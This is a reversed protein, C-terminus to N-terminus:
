GPLRFVRYVLTQLRETLTENGTVVCAEGESNQRAFLPQRELAVRVFYQTQLPEPRRVHAATNSTTDRSLSPVEALSIDLVSGSFSKGPNGNLRLRVPSSIKVHKVDTESLRMVAEFRGPNGVIGLLEGAEVFCGQNDPDFPAGKWGTLQFRPQTREAQRLPPCFLTGATPTVVSLRRLNDALTAQQQQADWLATQLIPIEALM